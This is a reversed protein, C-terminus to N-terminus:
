IVVTFNELPQDRGLLVVKKEQIRWGEDTRRFKLFCRGSLLRQRGMGEMRWDGPRSEAFLLNYRASAEHEGLAFVEVNTVHHVTESRPSQATRPGQKILQDVRMERRKRDDYTISLEDEPNQADGMAVWYIGDNTFLRSWEELQWDDLLRAEVLILSIVDSDDNV